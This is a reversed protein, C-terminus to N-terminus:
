AKPMPWSHAEGKAYRLSAHLADYVPMMQDLMALDDRHLASMGLSIALLGAAAPALDHAGTDAGRVIVALDRLVRDTVGFRDLLTDFSCRDGDHTIPAGDIDFAVGGLEEAVPLVFEPDVYLIKARDDVFRRIFWPCAIRDIKPRRRTVWTTGTTFRSIDTATSIVPARAARWADIGGILQAATYGDARLLGTALQSVNHGHICYVVVPRVRDGGLAAAPALHDARRAAPLTDVATAFIAPRRVDLIIPAQGASLAALLQATDIQGTSFASTM